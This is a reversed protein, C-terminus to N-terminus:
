KIGGDINIVSANVYESEILFKVANVINSVKGFKKSPIQKLIENKKDESLTKILGVEFYGLSLVNSTINFRAYEQALVRSMGILGTKTTSYAITGPDGQRGVVSSIYIIRGWREAMMLPLLAKTLFFGGKLNVGMVRDWDSEPYTAALGDISLAACHIIIVRLLKSEWKRIFSKIGDSDELNLKEYEINKNSSSSPLTTNYLGIIHDIISLEDIIEKGIGGSVGTIVIM